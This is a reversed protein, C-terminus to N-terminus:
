IKQFNLLYIPKVTKEYRVTNLDYDVDEFLSLVTETKLNLDPLILETVKEKKKVDKKVKEKPKKVLKKEEKKDQKKQKIEPKKTEKKPKENDPLKKVM